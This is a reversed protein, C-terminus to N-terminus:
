NTIQITKMNSLRIIDDGNFVEALLRVQYSGPSHYTHSVEEGISYNQDGYDWYYNVKDPQEKATLGSRCTIGLSSQVIGFSLQYDESITIEFNWEDKFQLLLSPDIISLIVKYNGLTDFCHSVVQGYGKTGDGFEWRYILDAREEDTSERADLVICNRVLYMSDYDSQASALNFVSLCLIFLSLHKM